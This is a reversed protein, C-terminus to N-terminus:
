SLYVPHLIAILSTGGSAFSYKNLFFLATRVFSTTHKTIPASMSYKVVHKSMPTTVQTRKRMAVSHRKPFKLYFPTIATQNVLFPPIIVEKMLEATAKPESILGLQGLDQASQDLVQDLHQDAKDLFPNSPKDLIHHLDPYIKVLIILYDLVEPAQPLILLDPDVAKALITPHDQIAEPVLTTPVKVQDNVKLTTQPHPVQIVRAPVQHIVLPVPLITTQHNLHFDQPHDQYQINTMIHVLHTPRHPLDLHDVLDALTAQHHALFTALQRDVQTPALSQLHRPASHNEQDITSTAMKHRHIIFHNLLSLKLLKLDVYVKNNNNERPM